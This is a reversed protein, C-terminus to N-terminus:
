LKSKYGPKEKHISIKGKTFSAVMKHWCFQEEISLVFIIDM